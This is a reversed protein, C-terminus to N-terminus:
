EMFLHLHWSLVPGQEGGAEGKLGSDQPQRAVVRGQPTAQGQGRNQALRFVPTGQGLAGRVWQEDM